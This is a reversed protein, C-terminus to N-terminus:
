TKRQIKVRLTAPFKTKLIEEVKRASLVAREKVLPDYDEILVELFNLVELDAIEGVAWAASVRDWKNGSQVM